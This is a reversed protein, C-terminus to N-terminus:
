REATLICCCRGVIDVRDRGLLSSSNSFGVFQRLGAPDKTTESTPSQGETPPFLGHIRSAAIWEGGEGARVLSTRRLTGNEAAKKLVSASFPGRVGQRAKVYWRTTSM